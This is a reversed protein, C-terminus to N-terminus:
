LWFREASNHIWNRQKITCECKHGTRFRGFTFYFYYITIVNKWKDILFCVFLFFIISQVSSLICTRNLNTYCSSVFWIPSNRPGDILDISENHYTSLDQDHIVNFHICLSLFFFRRNLNHSCHSFNYSDLKEDTSSPDNDHM